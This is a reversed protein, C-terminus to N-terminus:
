VFFDSLLIDLLKAFDEFNEKTQKVNGSKVNTYFMNWAKRLTSLHVNNNFEKPIGRLKNIDNIEDYTFLGPFLKQVQQEISHHVVVNGKEDPFENFFDTRYNNHM